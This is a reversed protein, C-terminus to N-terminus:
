RGRFIPARKELFATRGERYDESESARGSLAHATEPALTGAALGILIAKKRQEPQLAAAALGVAVANDGALVLDIMVVQVFATLAEASLLDSM